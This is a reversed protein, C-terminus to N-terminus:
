ATPYSRRHAEAVVQERQEYTPCSVAGHENVEAGEIKFEEIVALYRARSIERSTNVYKAGGFLDTFASSVYEYCDSQGDVRGSQFRDAFADVQDTTPGDTWSVAVSNGMSFSSSRVSFKVGPFKKALLRRLNSAALVHGRVSSGEQQVLYPFEAKLSVTAAERATKEEVQRAAAERAIEDAVTAAEQIFAAQAVADLVVPTGDSARVLQWGAHCPNKEALGEGNVDSRAGDEALVRQQHYVDSCDDSVVMFRKTPNAMDTYTLLQGIALAGAVAATSTSRFDVVIVNGESSLTEMRSLYPAVAM